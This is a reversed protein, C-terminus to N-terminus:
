GQVKGRMCCVGVFRSARSELYEMSGMFTGCGTMDSAMMAFDLSALPLKLLARLRNVLSSGVKLTLGAECCAGWLTDGIPWM